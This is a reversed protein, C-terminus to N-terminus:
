INVWPNNDSSKKNNPDVTVHDRDVSFNAVNEDAEYKETVTHGNNSNNEQKFLFKSHFIRLHWGDRQHESFEVNIGQERLAPISRRLISSLGKPSRPWGEGDQRYQEELLAKLKKFTGEWEKVRSQMMEIVALAAPSSDLSHALSAKRNQKYIETFSEDSMTSLMAEGLYAFDMMRPPKEIDICPLIKLTKSFLDLLGAFIEPADSTFGELLEADKKKNEEEIKPLYLVISRDILDPRTVVNDIGNIIVPRKVEIVFEDNDSYLKRTCFGGGTALTCLADQMDNSLNSMNEFSAQWNNAASVFIDEVRKPATRLPVNNPDSLQRLYKHTSSKASGQEGTLILITFPTDTRWSELLFALVLSQDEKRVNIYKWLLNINVNTSDPVPLSSANSSRIFHEEPHNIIQWDYSTIKVSQWRENCLDIIYGDKCPACRLYVEREQGEYKAIGSLALIVQNIITESPFFNLETYAKFCLWDLFGMSGLAWTEKHSDRNFTAYCENNKNHFLESLDIVLTVLDGAKTSSEGSSSVGSKVEKVWDSLQVRKGVEKLESRKRQFEPKDQQYLYRAAEIVESVWHAGDDGEKLKDIANNVVHVATCIDKNESSEYEKMFKEHEDSNAEFGM